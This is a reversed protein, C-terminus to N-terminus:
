LHLALKRGAFCSQAQCKSLEKDITFLGILSPKREPIGTEMNGSDHNRVALINLYLYQLLRFSIGFSIREHPQKARTFISQWRDDKVM